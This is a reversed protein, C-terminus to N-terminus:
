RVHGDPASSTALDPDPAPHLSTLDAPHNASCKRGRYHSAPCISSPIRKRKSRRQTVTSCPKTMMSVITQEGVNRGRETSRVLNLHLLAVRYVFFFFIGRSLNPPYKSPFDKMFEETAGFQLVNNM